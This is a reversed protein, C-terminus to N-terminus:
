NYFFMSFQQFFNTEIDYQLDGWKLLLFFSRGVEGGNKKVVPHIMPSKGPGERRLCCCDEFLQCFGHGKGKKGLCIPLLLLIPQQPTVLKMHKPPSQARSLFVCLLSDKVSPNKFQLNGQLSSFESFVTCKNAVKQTYAYIFMM